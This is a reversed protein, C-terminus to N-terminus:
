GSELAKERDGRMASATLAIIFPQDQGSMNERILRLSGVGDLVPMQLQAILATLRSECRVDMLVAEPHLELAKQFGVRGNEAFEVDRYGLRQM